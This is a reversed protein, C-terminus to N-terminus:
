WRGHEANDAGVYKLDFRQPCRIISSFRRASGSAASRTPSTSTSRRATSRATARTSRTPRGPRKSRRRLERRPTIGPRWRAWSIGGAADVAQGRVGARLRRLGAAGAEVAARGRRRDADGHHLLACRGALVAARADARLARGSAENRHLVADARPVPDAPRSLEAGRQRLRAHPGPCNMAKLAMQEGESEVLFMNERYHQWHGSTEWLAKNFILPTKVGTGTRAAASSRM